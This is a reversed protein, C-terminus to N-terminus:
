AEGAADFVLSQKRVIWPTHENNITSPLGVGTYEESGKRVESEM